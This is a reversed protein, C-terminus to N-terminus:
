KEKNQHLSILCWQSEKTKPTPIKAGYCLKCPLNDLGCGGDRLCTSISFQFAFILM